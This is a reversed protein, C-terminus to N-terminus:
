GLQSSTTHLAQFARHLIGDGISDLNETLIQNPDRNPDNIDVEIEDPGICYLSVDFDKLSDQEVNRAVGIGKYFINSNIRRCTDWSSDAITINCLRSDKNCFIPLTQTSGDETDIGRYSGNIDISKIDTPRKSKKRDSKVNIKNYYFGQGSRLIGGESLPIM